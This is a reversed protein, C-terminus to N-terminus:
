QVEWTNVTVLLVTGCVDTSLSPQPDSYQELGEAPSLPRRTQAPSDSLGGAQRACLPAGAGTCAAALTAVGTCPLLPDAACLYDLCPM